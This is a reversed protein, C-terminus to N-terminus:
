KAAEPVLSWERAKRRFEAPLDAVFSEVNANMKKPLTAVGGRRDLEKRLSELSALLLDLRKKRSWEQVSPKKAEYTRLIDDPTLPRLGGAYAQVFALANKSGVLGSLVAGLTREIHDSREFAELVLAVKHWARPTSLATDFIRPNDGVYTLVAPHLKERRAWDLWCAQDPIAYVEIYRDLFAADLDQVHYGADSPNACAALMWDDPLEYDSLHIRRSTLFELSCANMLESCRNAEEMLFIGQGATPLYAPRAYTMTEGDIRPLGCLDVPEMLSLDRILLDIGLAGAAEEFVQSKGIGHAGWILLPVRATFSMTIVDILEPGVKVTAHNRM